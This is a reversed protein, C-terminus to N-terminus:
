NIVMKMVEVLVGINVQILYVGKPLEFVSFTSTGMIERKLIAKGQQDYITVKVRVDSQTPSITFNGNNPNPYISFSSNNKLAVNVVKTATTEFKGDTDIMKLRYYNNGIQPSNDVTNYVGGDKSNLTKIKLFNIEDSSKEVDFHSVNKEDETVWTLSPKNNVLKADFSVLRLPLTTETTIEIVLPHDPVSFTQSSVNSVDVVPNNNDTTTPLYAKLNSLKQGFDVTVNTPLVDVGVGSSNTSIAEQWLILYFKGNAKQLLMQHIENTTANKDDIYGLSNRSLTYNLKGTEININGNDELLAILRKVATGSPKLVGDNYALGFHAEPDGDFPTIPSPDMLEYSCSYVIGANFHELFGRVTYKAATAEDVGWGNNDNSITPYGWETFIMPKDAEVRSARTADIYGITGGNNDPATWLSITPPACTSNFNCHNLNGWPKFPPWFHYPHANGFHVFDNISGAKAIECAATPGTNTAIKLNPLVPLVNNWWNKIQQYAQADGTTGMNENAGELVIVKNGLPVLYEDRLRKWDNINDTIIWTVGGPIGANKGAQSIASFRTVVGRNNMDLDEVGGNWGYIGDRLHRIRLNLVTNITTQEANPEDPSNTYQTYNRASHVCVGIMDVFKDAPKSQIQALLNLQIGLIAVLCGATKIFTISSFNRM